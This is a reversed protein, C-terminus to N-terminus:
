QIFQSGSQGKLMERIKTTSGLSINYKEMMERVPLEADGNEHVQRAVEHLKVRTKVSNRSIQPSIETEGSKMFDKRSVDFQKEYKVFDRNIRKDLAVRDADYQALAEALKEQHAEFLRHVM